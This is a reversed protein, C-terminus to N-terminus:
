ITLTYSVLSEAVHLLVDAVAVTVMLGNGVITANDVGVTMQVPAVAVM